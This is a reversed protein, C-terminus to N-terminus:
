NRENDTDQKKQGGGGYKLLTHPKISALERYPMVCEVLGKNLPGERRRELVFLFRVNQLQSLLAFFLM